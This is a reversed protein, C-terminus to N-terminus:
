MVPSLGDIDFCMTSTRVCQAATCVYSRAVLESAPMCEVYFARTQIMRTIGISVKMIRGVVPPAYMGVLTYAHM